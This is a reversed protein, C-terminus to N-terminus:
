QIEGFLRLSAQIAFQVLRKMEEKSNDIREQCPPVGFRGDREIGYPDSTTCFNEVVFM